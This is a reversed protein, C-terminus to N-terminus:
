SSIGERESPLKLRFRTRGDVTDADIMGGHDTATRHAVTLGLGTGNAKTSYFADFLPAEAAFGHGDDEVEFRVFNGDRRVRVVIDKAGAELANTVLSALVREVRAADAPFVIDATPPDVRVRPSGAAVRHVLGVASTPVLALPGPQAFELFEDVMRALRQIEDKVVRLTDKTEAEAGALTRELYAVHLRAGNLPNRIEHALGSALTGLAALRRQQEERERRALDEVRALLHDQYTDVMIALEIDLLRGLSDRALADEASTGDLLALLSARIVAMASFMYRQPLSVRVHTRGIRATKEFYAEDYTGGFLRELWAVLSRHLRAIQEEGALVERAADHERIRDYFETAIREFHPAVCSKRAAIASADAETFRVYRKLEESRTEM